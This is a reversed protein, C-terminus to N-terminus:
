VGAWHASKQANLFETVFPTAPKAVLEALTGRQVIRGAELLVIEDALFAAEALDHTVLLVTKALTRFLDRLEAQLKARIMPDLAGLPEDLLLVEPDLVLARMLGVRQRQGGSLQSPFRALLERELHCLAALEEVRRAIRAEDWGVDRAVLAANDFATLHPFLGGEQIVYGTKLRIARVTAPSVDTQGVRVTGQDPAILGVVLRLLTSKGCGSPGIVAVVRRDAVELSIPGLARMSGYSRTVDSLRLSM